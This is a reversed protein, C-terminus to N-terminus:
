PDIPGIKGRRLSGNLQDAINEMSELCRSRRKGELRPLRWDLLQYNMHLMHKAQETSPCPNRGARMATDICRSICLKEADLTDHPWAYANSRGVM